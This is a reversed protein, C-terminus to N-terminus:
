IISKILRLKHTYQRLGENYIGFHDLPDIRVKHSAHIILNNNILIGTHIIEGEENDFFVLDGPKAESILNLTEGQSAQQSADRLLHIGHIKYIIQTFGSCDIGFPSRGGWLYPANHYMYATILVKQRIDSKTQNRQYEYEGLYQFQIGSIEFLEDGAGYLTSGACIPINKRGDEYSVIQILEHCYMAPANNLKKFEEESIYHAQGSSIWGEYNDSVCKIYTWEKQKDQVQFLEGFLLQSVMESKHSPESRIPIISIICIGFDM